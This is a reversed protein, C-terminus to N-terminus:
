PVPYVATDLRYVSTRNPDFLSAAPHRRPGSGDTETQRVTGSYTRQTVHASITLSPGVFAIKNPGIVADKFACKKSRSRTLHHHKCSHQRSEGLKRRMPRRSQTRQVIALIRM